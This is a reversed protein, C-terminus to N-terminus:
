FSEAGSYSRLENFFIIPFLCCLWICQLLLVCLKTDFMIAKKFSAYM